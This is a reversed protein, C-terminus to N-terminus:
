KNTENDFIGIFKGHKAAFIIEFYGDNDIDSACVATAGKSKMDLEKFSSFYGTRTNKLWGVQGKLDDVLCVDVYGDNNFDAFAFDPVQQNPMSTLMKPDLFRKVQKDKTEEIEFTHQTIALLPSNRNAIILEFSDDNHVDCIAICQPGMANYSDIKKALSFKGAGKNEFWFIENSILSPVFMDLDSDLDIDFLAIDDTKRNENFLIREDDFIGNGLNEFWSIKDRKCSFHDGYATAIDMDGDGDIDGTKLALAHGIASFIIKQDSFVLSGKNEYWAIHGDGEGTSLIDLDGDGDVDEVCVTFYIADKKEHIIQEIYETEGKPSILILRDKTAIIIENRDDGNLDASAIEHILTQSDYVIRLDSFQCTGSFFSFVVLIFIIYLKYKSM